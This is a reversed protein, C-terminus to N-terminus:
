AVAKPPVQCTRGALLDQMMGQKIARDAALRRELAAIEADADSLANAIARQEAVPPLSIVLAKIEKTSTGAVTSGGASAALVAGNADFWHCLYADDVDSGTLLAKLDQNIAVDVHFRVAKGVLMRAALVPTGAPILRTASAQLGTRTIHEQTGTPHFTSIDKITAWPISGGWYTDNGRSPTGGGVVAVVAGITSEIWTDSFGPLRTRGTLLEQMMGQKIARKKSILRGLVWVAESVDDMANAIHQQERLSPYRIPIQRVIKGSLNDQSGTNSLSRIDEYHAQLYHLLFRPSVDAFPEIAACAQNMAASIGLIATKGRTKGQGYMAMLLTGPPAVKAASNRVGEDTIMEATSLITDGSM